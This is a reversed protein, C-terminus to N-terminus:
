EHNRSLLHGFREFQTRGLTQGHEASRHRLVCSFREALTLRQSVANNPQPVLVDRQGSMKRVDVLVVHSPMTASHRIRVVIAAPASRQHAQCDGRNKENDPQPQRVFESRRASRLIADHGASRVAVLYYGRGSGAQCLM